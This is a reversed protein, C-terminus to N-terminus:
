LERILRPRGTMAGVLRAKGMRSGEERILKNKQKTSLHPTKKAHLKRLQQAIMRRKIGQSRMTGYNAM